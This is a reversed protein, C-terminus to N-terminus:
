YYEQFRIRTTLYYIGTLWREYVLSSFYFEIFVFCKKGSM